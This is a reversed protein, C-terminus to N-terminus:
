MLDLHKFKIKMAEWVYNDRCSNWATNELRDRVKKFEVGLYLTSTRITDEKIYYQTTLQDM